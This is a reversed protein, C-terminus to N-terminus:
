NINEMAAVAQLIESLSHTEGEEAKLEKQITMLPKILNVLEIIGATSKVSAKTFFDKKIEQMLEWNDGTGLENFEYENITTKNVNYFEFDDDIVRMLIAEWGRKEFQQQMLVSLELDNGPPNEVQKESLEFFKIGMLKRVMGMLEFNYVFETYVIDGAENKIVKGNADFKKVRIKKEM